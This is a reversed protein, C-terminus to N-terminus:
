AITIVDDIGNNVYTGVGVVDLYVNTTSVVEAVLTMAGGMMGVVRASSSRVVIMSNEQVKITRSSYSDLTVEVRSGSQNIYWFTTQFNSYNRVVIKMTKVVAATGTVTNGDGDILQYGSELNAATGPNTLVPLEVGSGGMLAFVPVYQQSTEDWAKVVPMNGDENAQVAKYVGNENPAKLTPIGM